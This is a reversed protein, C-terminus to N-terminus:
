NEHLTYRQSTILWPHNPGNQLRYFISFNLWLRYEGQFILMSDVFWRNPFSFSRFWVELSNQEVTLRWSYIPRIKTFSLLVALTSSGGCVKSTGSRTVSWSQLYPNSGSYFSSNRHDHSWRIWLRYIYIDINNMCIFILTLWITHTIMIM